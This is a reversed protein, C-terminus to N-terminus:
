PRDRDDDRIQGGEIEQLQGDEVAVVEYRHVGHPQNVVRDPMDGPATKAQPQQLAPHRRLSVLLLGCGAMAIALFLFAMAYSHSATRILGVVYPGAFGGVAGITNIFAIGAAAATGSLFITPLSWFPGNRGYIGSAAVTLALIALVPTHLVAAAVFGAAAAFCPVAAHLCREGVRDSHLGIWVMAVAAPIFPLASVIGVILDSRASLAKLIEPMWFQLGFSGTNGLAQAVGLRWALPNSLVSRLPRSGPGEFENRDRRLAEILAARARPELWTAQAPSDPLYRLVVLGLLVAPLGEVLLLWQWGALGSVGNLSLLMGAIPGGFISAIPVALAFQALVRGREARPFWSSLYFIIGPVCGAEAAGLLFRLAYFSLAGKVLLTAITVIGWSIMIRAIWIRAGVRALVLNSPIELAAYSVFFLGAGFGYVAPSFGLDRNMQLAAFGVNVRDLWAVVYVLTLLPILRRRAMAIAAACEDTAGESRNTM